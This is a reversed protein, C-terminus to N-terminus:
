QPPPGGLPIKHAVGNGDTFDMEKVDQGVVASYVNNSVQVTTTVAGMLKIVSSGDPVLGRVLKTGDARQVTGILYGQLAKDLTNCTSAGDSGTLCLWGQAPVVYVLNAEADRGAFKGLDPNAGLDPAPGRMISSQAMADLKDGASPAGQLASFSAVMEQPTASVPAYSTGPQPQVPTPGSTAADAIAIGGALLASTAGVLLTKTITHRTM